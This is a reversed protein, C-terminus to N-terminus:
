APSASARPCRTTTPGRSTPTCPARRDDGVLLAGHGQVPVVDVSDTPSSCTSGCTPSPSTTARRASRDRVAADSPRVRRRGRRRDRRARRTLEAAHRRAHLPQAPAVYVEEDEEFWHDMAGWTFAVLERLEDLPSDAHRYAAAPAVRDGVRVDFLQADGRSPSRRAEGTAHLLDTRVDALPFYYTPYNPSSGCWGCTRRTSSRRRRRPLRAGAESRARGSRAGRGARENPAAGQATTMLGLGRPGPTGLALVMRAHPRADGRARRGTGDGAEYAEQWRSACLCWRDGPVLGPFGHAPM